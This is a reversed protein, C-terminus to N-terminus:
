TRCASYRIICWLTRIGDRWTIKKGEAYTRGYYAVPVEYIRWRRGKAVKVTIEPEIGFREERLHLGQLVERRFVKYCVEMDSLNLDTFVNSLLTLLRNGVAHWFYVVRHPGGGIFRSGFVVDAHGQLIPALLAPYDSPDYELDADQILVIDGTAAALGTRVAAGKGRNREHFRVIWDPYRAALERLLAGSGDTSADDVLVLQRELEGPKGPLPAAVVRRILEELTARENFIPIIVSVQM